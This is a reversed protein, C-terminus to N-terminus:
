PEERVPTVPRPETGAAAEGGGDPQLAASQQEAARRRARRAPSGMLYALIAMPLVGYLLATALAGLLTGNPGAAEAVVMMLVVYGWAILVVYM